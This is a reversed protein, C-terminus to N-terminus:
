QTIVEDPDIASSVIPAFDCGCNAIEGIDGSPDGPFALGNSFTGDISVIEGNMAAHNERSIGSWLWEKQEVGNQEYVKQSSMGSVTLTETRAIREAQYQAQKGTAQLIRDLTAKSVPSGGNSYVDTRILDRLEKFQTASVDTILNKRQDIAKGVAPSKLNWVADIGLKNFSHRSAAQWVQGTLKEVQGEIDLPTNGALERMQAELWSDDEAPSTVAREQQGEWHLAHFEEIIGADWAAYILAQGRDLLRPECEAIYREHWRERPFRAKRNLARTEM